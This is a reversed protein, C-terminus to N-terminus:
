RDEELMTRLKEIGLRVRSQATRLPCGVAESVERYTLGGWFRLVVAERMSPDLQQLAKLVRQGRRQSAVAEDPPQGPDTLENGGKLWRTLSIWSWRKKRQRDRSRSVVVVTLWATLTGRHPDFDDPNLLVQALAEQAADEAEARNGLLGLALRFSRSRHHVYLAKAATQDGTQWRAILEPTEQTAAEANVPAVKGPGKASEEREPESGETERRTVGGVLSVGDRENVASSM